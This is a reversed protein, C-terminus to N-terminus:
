AQAGPERRDRARMYHPEEAPMIYDVDSVYIPKHHTTKVGTHVFVPVGLSGVRWCFSLDESIPQGNGYQVLDFWESGTGGEALNKDRIRELVSRHILLCAAGTGAVQVLTNEPYIYRHVYGIHGDVSKALGFLTPVAEFRRGGYPDVETEMWAFCLAGVVPRSVPDAAEVLRDVTDASFGMDTDIFFLWEDEGDLFHQVILNRGAVLSNPGSCAVRIPGQTLTVRGLSFLDHQWLRIMCDHWSHSVRDQHPYAVRVLGNGTASALPSRSPAPEDAAVLGAPAHGVGEDTASDEYRYPTADDPVRTAEGLARLSPLHADAGRLSTRTEGHSPSGQTTSM